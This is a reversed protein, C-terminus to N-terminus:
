ESGRGELHQQGEKSPPLHTIVAPPVVGYEDLLRDVALVYLARDEPAAERFRKAAITLNELLNREM